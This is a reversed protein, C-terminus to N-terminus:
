KAPKERLKRLYELQSSLSRFEPRSPNPYLFDVFVWQGNKMELEPIVDPEKGKKGSSLGYVEARCDAGNSTVRGVIYRERCDQCNLFPDFDLGVLDGGAKEQAKSDEAIQDFLKRSFVQPRRKLAIDWSPVPNDRLTIPVYWNYFGQVSERCSQGADKRPIMQGLLLVSFIACIFLSRIIVNPLSMHVGKTPSGKSTTHNRAHTPTDTFRIHHRPTGITPAPIFVLIQRNCTIQFGNTGTGYKSM